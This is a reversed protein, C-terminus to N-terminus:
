GERGGVREGAKVAGARGDNGRSYVEVTGKGKRRGGGRVRQVRAPAHM